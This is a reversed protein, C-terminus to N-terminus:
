LRDVLEGDLMMDFHRHRALNVMHQEFAFVRVLRRVIQHRPVGLALSRTSCHLNRIESQPNRILKPVAAINSVEENRMGCGGDRIVCGWEGMGDNRKELIGNEREETRVNECKVDWSGSRM